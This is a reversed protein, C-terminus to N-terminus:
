IQQNPASRSQTAGNPFGRTLNQLLIAPIKRVVNIIQLTNQSVTQLFVLIDITILLNLKQVNHRTSKIANGDEEPM